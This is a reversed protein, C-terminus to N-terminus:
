AATMVLGQFSGANDPVKRMAAELHAVSIVYNKGANYPDHVLFYEDNYGIPVVFHAGNFTDKPYFIDYDVLCVPLIDADLLERIKVPTLGSTYSFPFGMQHALAIGQNITLYRPPQPLGLATRKTLDDVSPYLPTIGTKKRIYYRIPMLLAAILCDNNSAVANADIQSVYPADRRVTWVIAEIPTPPAAFSQEGDLMQGAAWGEIGSPSKVRVWAYGDPDVVPAQCVEVMNNLYLYTKTVATLAPAERVRLGNILTKLQRPRECPPYNQPPTPAPSPAPAPAKPITVPNPEKFWFPFSLFPPNQPVGPLIVSKHDPGDFGCLGGVETTYFYLEPISGPIPTPTHLWRLFIVDRVTREAGGPTRFTYSPFHDYFQMWDTIPPTNRIVAGTQYNRWQVFLDRRFIQGKRMFRPIWPAGYIPAAPTGRLQQYVEVEDPSTDLGRYLYNADWWFHEFRGNKVQFASNAHAGPMVTCSEYGGWGGLGYIVGTPNCLYKVMDFLPSQTM